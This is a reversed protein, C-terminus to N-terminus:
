DSFPLKISSNQKPKLCGVTNYSSSSSSSSISSSFSFPLVYLCSCFASCFCFCFFFFLFFSFCASTWQAPAKERQPLPWIWNLMQTGLVVSVFQVYWTNKIHRAALEVGVTESKYAVRPLNNVCTHKDDLLIIQYEDFSLLTKLGSFYDSVLQVETLDATTQSYLSRILEPWLASM